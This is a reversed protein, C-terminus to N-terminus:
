QQEEVTPVALLESGAQLRLHQAHRFRFATETLVEQQVHPMTVATQITM